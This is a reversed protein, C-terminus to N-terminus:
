PNLDWVKRASSLGPIRMTGPSERARAWAANAPSRCQQERRDQQEAELTTSQVDFGRAAGETGTAALQLAGEPIGQQQLAKKARSCGPPCSALVDWLSGSTLPRRSRQLDGAPM